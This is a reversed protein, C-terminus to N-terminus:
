FTRYKSRFDHFFFFSFFNNCISPILDLNIGFIVCKAFFIINKKKESFYDFNENSSQVEKRSQVEMREVASGYGRSCKWVRSQVEESEVASGPDRSCKMVRSQVEMERSCKESEVASGDERSCKRLRSQVEESEVAIGLDQSYKRLRSQMEQRPQM